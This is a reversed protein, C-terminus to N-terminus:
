SINQKVPNTIKRISYVIGVILVTSIVAIVLNINGPSQSSFGHLFYTAIIGISNYSGHILIPIIINNTKEYIYCLFFSGSFTIITLLSLGHSVGFLMSIILSSWLFNMKSRAVSFFVGRFVLEESIAAAFGEGVIQLFINSGAGPHNEASKSGLLGKLEFVNAMSTFVASIAIAGFLGLIIVTIIKPIGIDMTIYLMERKRLQYPVITSVSAAVIIDYIMIQTSEPNSEFVEAVIGFAIIGIGRYVIITWIILSIINKSSNKNQRM